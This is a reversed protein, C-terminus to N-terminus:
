LPVPVALPAVGGVVWRAGSRSGAPGGGVPVSGRGALPGGARSHGGAAGGPGGLGPIVMSRSQDGRQMPAIDVDDLTPMIALLAIRAAQNVCLPECAAAPMM